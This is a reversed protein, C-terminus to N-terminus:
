FPNAIPKKLRKLIKIKILIIIKLMGHDKLHGFKLWSCDDGILEKITINPM